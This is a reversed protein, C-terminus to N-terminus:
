GHIIHIKRVFGTTKICVFKGIFLVLFASPYSGTKHFMILKCTSDGKWSQLPKNWTNIKKKIKCLHLFFYQPFIRCINGVMKFQIKDHPWCTKNLGPKRTWLINCADDHFHIVNLQAATFCCIFFFHISLCCVIKLLKYTFYWALRALNSFAASFSQM